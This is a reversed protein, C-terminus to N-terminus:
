PEETHVLPDGVLSPGQPCFAGSLARLPRLIAWSAIQSELRGRPAWHVVIGTHPMRAAEGREAEASGMSGLIQTSAVRPSPM